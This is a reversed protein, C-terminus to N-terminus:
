FDHFDATQQLFKENKQSLLLYKVRYCETNNTDVSFNDLKKM